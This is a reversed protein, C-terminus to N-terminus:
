GIRRYHATMFQKWDGGILIQSRMIRHDVSVFEYIDQYRALSGDGAMSPGETDLTLTTEAADLAGEYVWMHTMMSGVWSGVYRARGPDYGLTLLMTSPGCGSMEDKSETPEWDGKGEALIWLGGISRVTETGSSKLPPQDPGMMAEGEWAWDGIFKQLWAHEKQPESKM